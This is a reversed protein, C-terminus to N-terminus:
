LPLKQELFRREILTRPAHCEVEIDLRYMLAVAESVLVFPDFLNASYWVNSMM